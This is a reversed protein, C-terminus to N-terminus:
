MQNCNRIETPAVMGNQQLGCVRIEGLLIPSGLVMEKNKNKNMLQSFAKCDSRIFTHEESLDGGKM